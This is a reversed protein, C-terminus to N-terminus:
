SIVGLETTSEEVEIERFGVYGPVLPRLRYVGLQANALKGKWFGDSQTLFLTGVYKARGNEEIRSYDVFAYDRKLLQLTPPKLGRFTFMLNVDIPEPPRPTTRPPPHWETQQWYRKFPGCHFEEITDQPFVVFRNGNSDTELDAVCSGNSLIFFIQVGYFKAAIVDEIEHGLFAHEKYGFVEADSLTEEGASPAQYFKGHVTCFRGGCELEFVVTCYVAEGLGQCHVVPDTWPTQLVRRIRKGVIDSETITLEEIM